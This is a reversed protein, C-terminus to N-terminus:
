HNTMKYYASSVVIHQSNTLYCASLAPFYKLENSKMTIELNFIIM